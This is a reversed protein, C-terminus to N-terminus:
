FTILQMAWSSKEGLPSMRYQLLFCDFKCFYFFFCKFHSINPDHGKFQNMEFKERAAKKQKNQKQDKLQKQLHKILKLVNIVCYLSSVYISKVSCWLGDRGRSCM